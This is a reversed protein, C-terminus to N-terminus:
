FCLLHSIKAKKGTKINKAFGVKQSDKKFSLFELRLHNVTTASEEALAPPQFRLIRRFYVFFFMNIGFFYLYQRLLVEAYRITETNNLNGFINRVLETSFVM